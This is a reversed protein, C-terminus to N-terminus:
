RSLTSYPGIALEPAKGVQIPNERKVMKVAYIPCRQECNACGRCREANVVAKRDVVKIALVPCVRECTRCGTCKNEDVQSLLTVLKM